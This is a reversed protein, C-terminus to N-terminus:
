QIFGILKPLYLVIGPVYTVLILTIMLPILWPSIAKIVVEIPRETISSLVHVSFGVPPTLLGIMLNLVVIVGFQVPHIGLAIVLPQFIPVTLMIAAISDVFMGLILLIINILLLIVIKNSTLSLLGKMLIRDLGEFNMIWGFLGTAIVITMAPILVRFSEVMLRPLERVDFDRYIFLGILLSYFICVFAAETPTFMGSWIGGILIVPSLLAFFSRFFAKLLAGFSFTEGRPYGRKKAIIFVMLNLTILMCVGPLLGGMFLSGISVNAFVGYIVLPVSPPVIPGMTGSAGTVGLAFDEDYGAERMAKMEITGLGGIDAIASGSMGSFIFSALVNVYGLGGRFQGVSKGAFDFIRKTIGGRNMIQGALIFLPVAILPFSDPASAM